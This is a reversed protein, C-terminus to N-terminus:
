PVHRHRAATRRPSSLSSPCTRSYPATLLHRIGNGVCIRDFAVTAPRHALRGTFVKANDSLIQQPVGHRSLAELLADCVPRATARLVLKAIVCFRSHDDVGTVVKLETGDELM